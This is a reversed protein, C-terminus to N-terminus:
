AGLKSDITATTLQNRGIGIEKEQSLSDNKLTYILDNKDSIGLGLGASGKIVTGGNVELGIKIGVDKSLVIKRDYGNRSNITGTIFNSNIPEFNTKLIYIYIAITLSFLKKILFIMEMLM